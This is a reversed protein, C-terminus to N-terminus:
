GLGSCKRYKQVGKYRRLPYLYFSWICYAPQNYCIRAFPHCFMGWLPTTLDCSGDLNEHAGVM